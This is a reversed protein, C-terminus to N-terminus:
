RKPGENNQLVETNNGRSGNTVVVVIVEASKEKLFFLRRGIGASDVYDVRLLEPSQLSTSVLGM